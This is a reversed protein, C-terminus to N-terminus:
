RCVDTLEDVTEQTIGMQRALAYKENSGDVLKQCSLRATDDWQDIFTGVNILESVQFNGSTEM